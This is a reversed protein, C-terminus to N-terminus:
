QHPIHHIHNCPKHTKIHICFEAIRYHHFEYQDNNIELERSLIRKFKIQIQKTPDYKLVTTDELQLNM